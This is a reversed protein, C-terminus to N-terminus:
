WLVKVIHLNTQVFPIRIDIVPCPLHWETHRDILIPCGPQELQFAVAEAVVVIVARGPLVAERSKADVILAKRM